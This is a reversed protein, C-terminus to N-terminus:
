STVGFPPTNFATYELSETARAAPKGLTDCGKTLM